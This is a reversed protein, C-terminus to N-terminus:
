QAAEMRKVCDEFSAFYMGGYEIIAKDALKGQKIIEARADPDQVRALLELCATRAGISQVCFSEKQRKTLKKPRDIDPKM